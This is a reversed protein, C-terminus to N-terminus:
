INSRLTFDEDDFILKSIENIFNNNTKIDIINNTISIRIKEILFKQEQKEEFNLIENRIQKPSSRFQSLDVIEVKENDLETKVTRTTEYKSSLKQSSESAFNLKKNTKFKDSEKKSSKMNKCDRCRCSESCVGGLKFCECYKKLCNSKTCNCGVTSTINNDKLDEKQGEGPKSYSENKIKIKDKLQNLILNRNEENDPTNSCDLCNCNYCYEGNIFCECYLKSCKSKKCNCSNKKTPELYKYKTLYENETTKFYEKKASHHHQNVFFPTSIISRSGSNGEHINKSKSQNRASQSSM